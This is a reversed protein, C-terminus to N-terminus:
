KLESVSISLEAGIAPFPFSGTYNTFKQVGTVILDEGGLESFCGAPGAGPIRVNMLDAETVAALEGSYPLVLLVPQKKCSGVFTAQGGSIVVVGEIPPGIVRESGTPPNGAFAGAAALVLVSIALAVGLTMKVVQKM